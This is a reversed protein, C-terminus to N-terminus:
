IDSEENKLRCQEQCKDYYDIVENIKEPSEERYKKYMEVAKKAKCDYAWRYAKVFRQQRRGYNKDKERAEYIKKVTRETVKDNNISVRHMVDSFELFMSEPVYGNHDRMQTWMKGLMQFDKKGIYAM